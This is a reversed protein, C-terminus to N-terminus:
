ARWSQDHVARGADDPEAVPLTFAFTSGKGVQSEVWIRGGHAEVLMRTIYLGLGLGETKETAKARYFREFLHPLEESSIGRGHDAVSVQVQGDTREVRVVIQADSYKLANNLLNTLIRELRDSDALAIPAPDPVAVSIRGTDWVTSLRAKLDAAVAAVDTPVMDLKMQGSEVWAMDVLDEIMANMRRASTAIAESSQRLRDEQGPRELM